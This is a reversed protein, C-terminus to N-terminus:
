FKKNANVEVLFGVLTALLIAIFIGVPEFLVEASKGIGFFEYAAIGISLAFAVLLIKILPNNFCDLFQLWLSRKKPPTLVNTGHKSRSEAVQQETLGTIKFTEKM